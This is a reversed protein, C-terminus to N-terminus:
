RKKKANDEARVVRDVRALPDGDGVFNAARAAVEVAKRKLSDGDYHFDPAHSAGFAALFSRALDREDDTASPALLRAVEVHGNAAAKLLATEETADRWSPEAGAALLLKCIELQGRGAAEILPTRRDAGLENVDPATALAAKVAALDGAEVAEFLTMASM